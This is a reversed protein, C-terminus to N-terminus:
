LTVSNGNSKDRSGPKGNRPENGKGELLEIIKDNQEQIAIARRNNDEMLNVGRHIAGMTKTVAEKLEDPKMGLMSSLMMEMGMM